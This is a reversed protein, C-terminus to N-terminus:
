KIDARVKQDVGVHVNELSVKRFGSLEGSVTYTGTPILPVTYEGSSDTSVTRTFGTGANVLVVTAGPVAGGSADRVTGLITGTVAQAAVPRPLLSLSLALAVSLARFLGSMGVRSKMQGGCCRSRRSPPIRRRSHTTPVVRKDSRHEVAEFFNHFM